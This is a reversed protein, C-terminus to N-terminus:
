IGGVNPVASPPAFVLGSAGFTTLHRPNRLQFGGTVARFENVAISVAEEPSIRVAARPGGGPTGAVPVGALTGLIALTALVRVVSRVQAM